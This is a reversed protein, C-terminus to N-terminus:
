ADPTLVLATSSGWNRGYPIWGIGTVLANATNKVQREGGEGFLQRV